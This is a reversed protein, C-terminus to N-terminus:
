ITTSTVYSLRSRKASCLFTIDILQYMPAYPIKQIPGPIGRHNDVSMIARGPLSSREARFSLKRNLGGGLVRPLTVEIQFHSVKAIGSRSIDTIINQINFAM